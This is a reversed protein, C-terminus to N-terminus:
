YPRTPESIHILSLGYAKGKLRAYAKAATLGSYMYGAHPAILGFVKEDAPLGEALMSNVLSSLEEKDAPYFIGAVSPKRIGSM